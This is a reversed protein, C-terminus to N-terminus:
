IKIFLSMKFKKFIAIHFDYPKKKMRESDTEERPVPAQM